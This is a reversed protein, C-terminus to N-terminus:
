QATSFSRLNQVLLELEELSADHKIVNARWSIVWTNEKTYGKRPDLRDLSPNQPHARNSTKTLLAIGLLPCHPPIEIDRWDLTFETGERKARSKAVAWLRYRHTRAQGHKIPRCKVCGKSTGAVLTQGQVTRTTGCTCRCAWRRQSPNLNPARELVTWKGFTMGTLDVPAGM